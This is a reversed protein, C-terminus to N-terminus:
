VGAKGSPLVRLDPDMPMRRMDRGHNPGWKRRMDRDMQDFRRPGGRFGGDAM